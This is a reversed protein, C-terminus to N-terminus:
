RMLYMKGYGNTFFRDTNDGDAKYKELRQGNLSTVFRYLYVGNGLKQGFQDTGDWKFETINRGIRLPGLEQKTIERVIKGTVTLIQIKMNQPIESGTITFVFATSTSFPNPYNLLNSIMPKGIVTFAIRYEINGAKNGSRDTGEVILEYEDGQQDYQKLFAPRFDITATNNEGSTAPTFRLTDNDFHYTRVTGDPFRVKVSSITTDNLLMYKAEDKLKIQIHPRASVLDRNLIHVGDFTVDLVPNIKDTKVYFNKFLFNNFQYQEPQDKDPNFEVYLTNADPYERTDLEFRIIVTDGSILPKQRPMAIVHNTNTRDLVTVKVALSDFSLNSINKFAIAFKLPDGVELTDKSELFLNPALAGEPVPSYYIRWADLQFPSLSVSDINRMRLRMRPYDSANVSSIDFNRTNRDLTYLISENNSPDIGIVDVTPNDNSPSEISRGMWLVEKWERAPGFEPSTIFGLTDPTLVDAILNIRDNIGNSYVFKPQFEARKDKQYLFIWARPGAFSDIGTFGQGLLRHYISNNSGLNVTDDMWQAPYTNSATDTGSTNRVVVIHGSPIIDLFEMMQRRKVSDLITFQFNFKRTNGCVVDSGYQGPNGATTNLWPQLTVPDFVNIIINSIGCVSQIDSSGNVSVSFDGAQNAATPFVGNRIFMNNSKFGYKWTRSASDLTVRSVNSKTHQYFHSQNFGEQNGSKYMFSANNWLLPQGTKPVLGVRWYYVMSDQYVFGPDYELVGGTSSITKSRKLSSNFFTTTDIEILYDKSEAMPNATSAYLKQTNNTIIAHNFPYVPRAEDEFIFIDKIASNNNEAIEDVAFDSDVTVIIRNAGKDRTALIPIDMNLSDSHRIGPIRKTLIVESSGDPYQRRVQVNISDKVSRGINVMRAKLKFTNDAISIFAPNISIQAEEIVYDPKPQGNLYLAPDGHVTIEEAHARSYFDFPGTNTLMGKLADRNVEGISRGYDGRSFTQYLNNLYLNLYNVIGFHTSAVFAISGRQKALVFKESLTENVSMRQVNYTFFNGANCGNVYFVPYKGQNNYSSPNDLNFELTTASSHGFYTLIGIGEEFLHSIRESSLQEVPSTSTKCFTYVKGGFLTDQAIQRYVSMYNCLVTGLFPDSSGTVHVVNKMWERGAITNPANKQASEYERVKELYDEIEKGNIVSLRGIPTVVIPDSTGNASLMNDSAPVGFSPVLNLEEVFADSEHRRYENYAMGRGILFVYKPAAAFKDRAFRIFNKISLPHKKIGFAFQDVLEDINIVQPTYGGGAASQRYLKYENVPNNGSSGTYLSPHSIILYDGQNATNTFQTFTKATLSTVNTHNGAETNVMVFERALPSGELAFSVVGPTSLDGVIRKGLTMDYLVPASAGANFNSIQLFYGNNRAPLQFRFNKQNNFDFVRPYHLEAYSVVMRDSGIGSTNEFMISATGSSLIGLPISTTSNVDNFYDMITDKVVTSNISAKIHRPNLANGSAGFRFVANPGSAYLGLDNFTVTLPNSPRIDNSSWYEGKDYSSSYVYEGVVAAFGLNIRDRYYNAAKHIYYPEVPLINTAVDNPADFYALGSADTNVSLFYVATDTLLSTKNTHQFNPDRYLARDAVGDNPEGWFELYGNAPLQGGSVSAYFPVPKGNRWLEFYEVSTNGIGAQDLISKPIRYLGAQAVKFKYYTQNFRIWENNYQQAALPLTWCLCLLLLLRKMSYLKPSIM